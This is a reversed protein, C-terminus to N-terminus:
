FLRILGERVSPGALESDVGEEEILHVALLGLGFSCSSRWFYSPLQPLHSWREMQDWCM